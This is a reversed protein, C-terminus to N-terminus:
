LRGYLRGANLLNKPDFMYKIKKMLPFDTGPGPWLELEAKASEPAFEIVGKGTWIAEEPSPFYAYTVGSGARSILPVDLNKMITKLESLTSSIRVVTGDPLVELFKPTFERLEELSEAPLSDPNYLEKRYRAIM